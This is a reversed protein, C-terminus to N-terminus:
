KTGTIKEITALCVDEPIKDRCKGILPHYTNWWGFLRSANGRGPEKAVALMDAHNDSGKKEHTWAIVSDGNGDVYCVRHGGFKQDSHIWTGEGKWESRSCNGTNRKV